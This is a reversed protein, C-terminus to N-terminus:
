KSGRCLTPHRECYQAVDKSSTGAEDVSSLIDSITREAATEMRSLKVACAAKEAAVAAGKGASGKHYAYGAPFGIVVLALLIAGIIGGFKAGGWPVLSGILPWAAKGLFALFTLM